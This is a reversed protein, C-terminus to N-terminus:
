PEPDEVDDRRSVKRTNQGHCGLGLLWLFLVTNGERQIDGDVQYVDPLFSRAHCRGWSNKADDGDKESGDPYAGKEEEILRQSGM